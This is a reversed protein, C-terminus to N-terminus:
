ENIFYHTQSAENTEWSNKSARRSIPPLHQDGFDRKAGINSETYNDMKAYLM